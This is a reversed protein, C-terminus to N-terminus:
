LTRRVRLFCQPWRRGMQELLTMIPIGTDGDDLELDRRDGSGWLEQNLHQGGM